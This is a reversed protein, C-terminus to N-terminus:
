PTPEQAADRQAADYIEAPRGTLGPPRLAALNARRQQSHRYWPNLEYAYEDVDLTFEREVAARELFFSGIRAHVAPDDIYSDSPGDAGSMDCLLIYTWQRIGHSFAVSNTVIERALPILADSHQNIAISAGVAAKQAYDSSNTMITVLYPLDNTGGYKGIYTVATERIMRKCENTEGIGYKRSIAVLETAVEANTMHYKDRVSDPTPVVEHADCGPMYECIGEIEDRRADQAGGVSPLPIAVGVALVLAASVDVIKQKMTM